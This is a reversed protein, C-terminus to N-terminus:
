ELRINEARILETLRTRQEAEFAGLEAPSSGVPIIGIEAYRARVAPEALAAAAAEHLRAIIAAPTGAPVWLAVWENLEFGPFGQEAVTPVDPLAPLRAATSVALARLRGERVLPSAQPITSFTFGVNGALVDAMAAASGRYPVHTATVGAQRLLLASALHPGAAIGSSSYTLEGPRARAMAILDALSRAPHDPRVVLLHPLVSIQTVPAFATAYDFPLSHMLSSNSAHAAADALVAYGDPAAQAVAAAGISGSAGGRNEVVVPQGLVEQMKPLLLRIPVDVGGGPTWAVVIRVPRSPWAPAPTQARALAPAALTALLGRRFLGPQRTM